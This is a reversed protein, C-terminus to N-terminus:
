EETLHCLPTYDEILSQRENAHHKKLIYEVQEEFEEEEDSKVFPSLCLRVVALLFLIGLAILCAYACLQKYPTPIVVAIITGFWVGGCVKMITRITRDIAYLKRYTSPSIHM